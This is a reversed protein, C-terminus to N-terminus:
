NEQSLLPEHGNLAVYASALRGKTLLRRKSDTIPDAHVGSTLLKHVASGPLSNFDGALVLADGAEMFKNLKTLLAIVQKLQQEPHHFDASLHTAVIVLHTGTAKHRVRAWAATQQKRASDSVTMSSDEVCLQAFAFRGRWEGAVPEFIERKFFIANGIQRGHRVRGYHDSKLAFSASDYGNHHLKTAIVRFHDQQQQQLGSAHAVGQVEELCVIDASARILGDLILEKRRSWQRLEAPCYDVALGM